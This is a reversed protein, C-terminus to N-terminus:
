MHYVECRKDVRIHRTMGGLLKSRIQGTLVATM